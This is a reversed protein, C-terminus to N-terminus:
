QVGGKENGFLATFEADEALQGLAAEIASYAADDDKIEGYKSKEFVVNGKVLKSFRNSGTEIDVLRIRILCEVSSTEQKLGYGTFIATKTQINVITGMVLLNAGLMKGTRLATEPEILGSLRIFESELLLQDIRQREVIRVDMNVLMDELISRPIESYRDITFGRRPNGPNKGSQVEYRTMSKVKSLNEFPTVLVIAGSEQGRANGTLILFALVLITLVALLRLVIAQKKM